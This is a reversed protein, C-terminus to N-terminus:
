VEKQNDGSSLPINFCFGEIRFSSLLNILMFYTIRGGGANDTEPKIPRLQLLGREAPNM